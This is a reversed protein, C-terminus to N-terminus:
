RGGGSTDMQHRIVWTMIREAMLRQEETFLDTPSGIATRLRESDADDCRARTVSGCTPCPLYIVNTDPM